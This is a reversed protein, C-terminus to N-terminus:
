SLGTIRSGTREAAQQRRQVENVATNVGQKVGQYVNNATGVATNVASNVARGTNAAQRAMGAGTHLAGSAAQTGLGVATNVASNVASNVARGTNAATRLTSAAGRNIGARAQRATNAAQRTMGAGAHLAGSAAQTGLGVATNIATNVGSRVQNAANSVTRLGSAAMRNTTSDFNRGFNSVANAANSLGRQIGDFFGGGLYKKTSKGGCKEMEAKKVCAKCVGGSKMTYVAEEGEPCGTKLSHIYALKAGRKAAQAQGQMQQAIEQIMQAVQAAQQDGQQAAQMIQEIAQTAQQDGSMAAQVLQVIQAQMDEGGQAPAAAPAPGGAQFYNIKNMNLNGGNKYFWDNGTARYNSTEVPTTTFDSYSTYDSTPQSYTGTSTSTPDQSDTDTAFFGRNHAIDYAGRSAAGVGAWGLRAKTNKWPDYKLTNSIQTKSKEMAKAANSAIRRDVDALSSNLQQIRQIEQTSAGTKPIYTSIQKGNVTTLKKQAIKDLEKLYGSKVSNLNNPNFANKVFTTSQKGLSKGPIKSIIKGFGKGLKSTLALAKTGAGTGKIAAGAATGIGPVFMLADGAASVGLSTWDQWGLDEGKQARDYMDMGQRVTGVIPVYDLVDGWGAYKIPGGNKYINRIKKANISGGVKLNYLENNVPSLAQQAKLWPHDPNMAVDTGKGVHLLGEGQLYNYLASGAVSGNKLTYDKLHDDLAQRFKEEYDPSKQANTDFKLIGNLKSWDGRAGYTGAFNASTEYAKVDDRYAKARLKKTFDADLWSADKIQNGDFSYTGDESNFSFKDSNKNADFWAKRSADLRDKAWASNTVDVEGTGGFGKTKYTGTIPDYTIEANKRWDLVADNYMKAAENANNGKYTAAEYAKNFAEPDYNDGEGETILKGNDVYSRKQVNGLYGSANGGANVTKRFQKAQDKSLGLISRAEKAEKRSIHDGLGAAWNAYQQYTPQEKTGGLLSQQVKSVKKKFDWQSPVQSSSLAKEKQQVEVANPDAEPMTKQEIPQGWGNAKGMALWQEQTLKQPDTATPTEPIGMIQAFQGELSTRTDEDLNSPDAGRQRVFEEFTM